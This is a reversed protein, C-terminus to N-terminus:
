FFEWCLAEADYPPHLESTSHESRMHSTGPEIGPVELPCTKSNLLSTKTVDFTKTNVKHNNTTKVKKMTM